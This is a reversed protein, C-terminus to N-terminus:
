STASPATTSASSRRWTNRRTGGSRASVSRRSEEAPGARVDRPGVPRRGSRRRGAEGRLHAQRGRGGSRSAAAPVGAADRSDRSRHRGRAGEPYADFGTFCREPTVKLKAALARTPQRPRRSSPARSSSGIPCSTAWRSSSWARPGACVTARPAPAAAAAASSVSAFRTPALACVRRVSVRLGRRGRCHHVFARRSIDTM